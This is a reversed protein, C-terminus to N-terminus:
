PENKQRLRQKYRLEKNKYWAIESGCKMGFSPDNPGGVIENISPQVFMLNQLSISIGNLTESFVLNTFFREITVM